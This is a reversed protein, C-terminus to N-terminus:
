QQVAKAHPLVVLKGTKLKLRVNPQAGAQAELAAENAVLTAAPGGLPSAEALYDGGMGTVFLGFGAAAAAHPSFALACAGDCLAVGLARPGNGGAGRALARGTGLSADNWHRVCAVLPAQAPVTMLQGLPGAADDGAARLPLGQPAPRGGVPGRARVHLDRR